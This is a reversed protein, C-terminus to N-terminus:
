SEDDAPATVEAGDPDPSVGLLRDLVKDRRLQTRLSELRGEQDLMQRVEGASRGRSGGISALVAQFENEDIKVDWAAAIADLLLRAHVRREAQPRMQKALDEWDIAAHELDVGRQALSEAYERLLHEVEHDVVGEPLPFAHRERLQDLVAKEKQRRLEQQKGRELRRKLDVTLEDLSELQSIKRAFEDDLPALEREKIATVKLRYHHHKEDAGEGESREFRVEQDAEAGTLAENVEDWITRDGIEVQIVQGEGEEGADDIEFLHATVLDGERAARDTPKWPAVSRQLDALASSVEEDSVEISMEPLDFHDLDGLSIDPRIEVTATFIMGSPTVDVSEITPPLLAHLDGEAEAQHWYRPVLREILTERIDKAFRKAIVESPVKGRRFGPIQRRHRLDTVIRQNEANVAPEPVEIKM